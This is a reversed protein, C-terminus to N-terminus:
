CFDTRTMVPTSTGGWSKGPMILVGHLRPWRARFLLTQLFAEPFCIHKPTNRVQCRSISDSSTVRKTQELPAPAPRALITSPRTPQVWWSSDTNMRPNIPPEMRASSSVVMASQTPRMGGAGPYDITTFKNGKLLFAHDSPLDQVFDPGYGGVMHGSKNISGTYTAVTGPFTYISWNLSLAPVGPTQARSETTHPLAGILPMAGRRTGRMSTPASSQFQAFASAVTFVMFWSVLAAQKM